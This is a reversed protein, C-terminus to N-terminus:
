INKKIGRKIMLTLSAFCFSSTLGAFVAQMFRKDAENTYAGKNVIVTEEKKRIFLDSSKENPTGNMVASTQWTLDDKREMTQKTGNSGAQWGNTAEIRDVMEGKNNLLVLTEGSNSLVGKYIMDAKAGPCSSDDTRELIFFSNANIKGKLEISPAGDEAKLQWGDLSIISSSTNKLEIWEDNASISTGMWCVENIVVSGVEARCIFPMLLVMAVITARM